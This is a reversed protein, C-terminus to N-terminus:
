QERRHHKAHPGNSKPRADKQQPQARPPPPPPAVLAEAVVRVNRVSSGRICVSAISFFTAGDPRMWVADAVSMNMWKDCSTLVGNCTAGDKMEVAVPKRLSATLATSPFVSM